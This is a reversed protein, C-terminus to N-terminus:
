SLDSSHKRLLSLLIEKQEEHTYNFRFEGEKLYYVFSDASVGRYQAIFTEFFDWFATITNYAKHLKAIKHFRLFQKMSKSDLTESYRRLHPMMINYVKDGFSFTLFNQAKTINQTSKRLSHPLYLSEDYETVLHANASYIEDSYKVILSRLRMYVRHVTLYHRQHIKAAQLSSHGDLFSMLITLERVQKQPSYKRKCRPCKCLGDALQYTRSYHCYICEM